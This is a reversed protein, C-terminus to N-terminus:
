RKKQPPKVREIETPREGKWCLSGMDDIYATETKAEDYSWVIRGVKRRGHGGEKRANADAENITGGRGWSNPMMVLFKM